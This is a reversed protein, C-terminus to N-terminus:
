IHIVDYGKQGLCRIQNIIEFRTLRGHSPFGPRQLQFVLKHEGWSATQKFKSLYLNSNTSSDLTASYLTTLHCLGGLHLLQRKRESTWITVVHSQELNTSHCFRYHVISPVIKMTQNAKDWGLISAVPTYELKTNYASWDDYAVSRIKNAHRRSYSFVTHDFTNRRERVEVVALKGLLKKSGTGTEFGRAGTVSLWM